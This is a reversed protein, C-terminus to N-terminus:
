SYGVSRRHDAPYQIRGSDGGSGGSPFGREAPIPAQFRRESDDSHLLGGRKCFEYQKGEKEIFDLTNERRLAYFDGCLLMLEHVEIIIFNQFTLSLM